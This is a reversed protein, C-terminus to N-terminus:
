TSSWHMERYWLRRDRPPPPPSPPVHGGRSNKQPSRGPPPPPPTLKPSPSKCGTFVISHRWKMTAFVLYRKWTNTKTSSSKILIRSKMGLHNLFIWGFGLCPRVSSSFAEAKSTIEGAEVTLFFFVVDDIFIWWHLNNTKNVLLRLWFHVVKILPCWYGWRM